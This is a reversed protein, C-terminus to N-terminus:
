RREARGWFGAVWLWTASSPSTWMWYSGVMATRADGRAVRGAVGGAELVEGGTVARGWPRAEMRPQSRRAAWRRYGNVEPAEWYAGTCARAFSSAPGTGSGGEQGRGVREVGDGGVAPWGARRAAREPSWPARGHMPAPPLLVSRDIWEQNGNGVTAFPKRRDVLLGASRGLGAAYAAWRALLPDRGLLPGDLRQRQCM